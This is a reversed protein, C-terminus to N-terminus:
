AKSASGPSARQVTAQRNLLENTGFILVFLLVVELAVMSWKKEFISMLITPLLMSGLIVAALTVLTYTSNAIVIEIRAGCSKCTADRRRRVNSLSLAVSDAGCAPCKRRSSAGV